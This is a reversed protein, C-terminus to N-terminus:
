AAKPRVQDEAAALMNEIFIGYGRTPDGILVHTVAGVLKGNQIIPSGSMGQVIGGTLALLREDTVRITFSREGTKDSTLDTIEISYHARECDPLTSIIEAKGLKVESRLAIPIAEEQPAKLMVGFVGCDTNSLLTGTKKSLLHGRLEGPAGAAGKTIGSLEVETVIGRCLSLPATGVGDYVGHGLGGFAGSTPDLFTVTGIGAVSDRGLLGARYAGAAELYAPTLSLTLSKEKRTVTLSLPKGGSADLAAALENVSSLAVGNVATILDGVLLGAAKAPAVGAVESLGVVMVGGLPARLGFLEGGPCLSVRRYRQVEVTKIPLFGFLKLTAHSRTGSATPLADGEELSGVAVAIEDGCFASIQGPVAYDAAGALAATGIFILLLVLSVAAQIKSLIKMNNRKGGKM